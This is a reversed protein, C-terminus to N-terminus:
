KNAVGLLGERAQAPVPARPGGYASGGSSPRTISFVRDIVTYEDYGCRAVAQMAVADMRGNVVFREEVHIGVVQGFVVSAGTENGDLDKLRLVQTVRCELVAPSEAVRPPRVIRAPATALGAYEFESQGRPLAASTLTMKDRLRWTAMSSTFEGTEEAFTQSDKASESAFVLIQPWSSVGNFFSNPALNLHGARSMTAVWGIARPVILGKFVDHPFLTRDRKDPEFFIVHLRRILSM